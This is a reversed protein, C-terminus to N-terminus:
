TREPLTIEETATIDSLSISCEETNEPFILGACKIKQFKFHKKVWSGSFSIDGVVTVSRLTVGGDCIANEAIFSVLARGELVIEQDEPFDIGSIDPTNTNKVYDLFDQINPCPILEEINTLEPYKKNLFDRFSM